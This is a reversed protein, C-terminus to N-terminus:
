LKAFPSGELYTRRLIIPIVRAEGADHRKMARDMEDLYCYESAMFDPSILLLIISATNLHEDIEQKWVKGPGIERDHRLTLGKDRKLPILYTILEKRLKEDERCYSLFVEINQTSPQSHSPPRPHPQPPPTPQPKPPRTIIPPVIKASQQQALAQQQLALWESDNPTLRLAERTCSLVDGWRNLSILVATYDQLLMLRQERNSVLILASHLSEYASQLKGEEFFARGQMHYIESSVVDANRKILHDVKRIVDNWDQEAFADHIQKILAQDTSAPSTPSIPTLPPAINSRLARDLMDKSARITSFLKNPFPPREQPLEGSRQKTDGPFSPRVTLIIDGGSLGTRLMTRAAEEKTGAIDVYNISTLLKRYKNGCECVLIPLLTEQDVM